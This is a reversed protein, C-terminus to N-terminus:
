TYSKIFFIILTYISYFFAASTGIAVLTDMSTSKNKIGSWTALYFERGAWFQVIAAFILILYKFNLFEFFGALMIYGALILSATVKVKLDALEKKKEEEPNVGVKYGTNEIAKKIEPDRERDTEVYATENGYNVSASIVGPTKSLKREILKACSACHMGVIPFSKKQTM